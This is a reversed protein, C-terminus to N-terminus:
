VETETKFSNIRDEYRIITNRLSETPNKPPNELVGNENGAKVDYVEDCVGDVGVPRSPEFGNESANLVSEEAQRRRPPSENIISDSQIPKGLAAGVEKKITSTSARSSSRSQSDGERIRVVWKWFPLVAIMAGSVFVFIGAMYFSLDYSGTMDHLWGGLPPGILNAIGQVLLLLGYANTFNELTILDVVIASTLVYNASISFGFTGAAVSLGTFNSLLPIIVIGVGCFSISASYLLMTNVGPIDGIYGFLVEGFTNFIGIVSILYPATDVDIANKLANDVMYVYPVDYWVYLLLNSICFILFKINKFYSVQVMDLLAEKLDEMCSCVENEEEHDITIMSNRYIDPCSSARIHYRHTNLMANRHTMSRRHLRLNHFYAASLRRTGGIMGRQKMPPSSIQQHNGSFTPPCYNENAHVHGCNKAGPYGASVSVSGPSLLGQQPSSLNNKLSDIDLTQLHDSNSHHNVLHPYNLMFYEYNVGHKGLKELLEKPLNEGQKLFTPLDVLSNCLRECDNLDEPISASTCQTATAANGHMSGHLLRRSEEPTTQSKQSISDSSTKLSKESRTKRRTSGELDRMLAGCVIINLFCGALILTAGRWTYTDVLYRTFPAFLFTGIGSGAVSLGTAFSRRKEFYYAVSVIAAVYCLALGFGSMIGFTIFLVELSNAFSSLVFGCSALMAGFITVQRCGYRDTLTSAIPGALLPVGMFLSGVWATKGKSEGFYKLFDVYLVGFSFTVGDAIMNTLFAAFVVVWGWGGDPPTIDFDDTSDTDSADVSSTAAAVGALSGNSLVRTRLPRCVSNQSSISADEPSLFKVCGNNNAPHPAVVVVDGGSSQYHVEKNSVTKVCNSHCQPTADDPSTSEDPVNTKAHTPSPDDSIGSSDVAPM